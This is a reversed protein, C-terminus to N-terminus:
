LETCQALIQCVAVKSTELADSSPRSKGWLSCCGRQQPFGMPRKVRLMCRAFPKVHFCNGAQTMIEEASSQFHLDMQTKIRPEGGGGAGVKEYENELKSPAGLIDERRLM